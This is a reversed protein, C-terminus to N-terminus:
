LDNCTGARDCGVKGISDMFAMNAPDDVRRAPGDDVTFVSNRYFKIVYTRESPPPAEAQALTLLCCPTLLLGPCSTNCLQRRSSM